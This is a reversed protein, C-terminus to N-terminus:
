LKELEQKVEDYYEHGEYYFQTDSEKVEDITDKVIRKALFREDDRNLYGYKDAMQIKRMAKDFLQKAKEKATKM